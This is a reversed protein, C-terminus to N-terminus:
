VGDDQASFPSSLDTDPHMHACAWTDAWVDYGAGGVPMPMPETRMLDEYIEDGEAEENEVCDYLDEDEEVTDSRPISDVLAVPAGLGPVGCAGGLDSEHGRLDVPCPWAGQLGGLSLTVDM